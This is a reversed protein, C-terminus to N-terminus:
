RNILHSTARPVLCMGTILHHINANYVQKEEQNRYV